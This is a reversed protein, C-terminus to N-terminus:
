DIDSNVEEPVEDLLEPHQILRRYYKFFTAYYFGDVIREDLSFKFDVFKRQVISGDELVDLERRKCGFSGFVPINGFDYLHHYIPPIGLSGMSTMFISGHFPSVELLFPPLIGFYDLTKLLWVTFKLLVGPILSILHAVNDFTSDLPTNKAKEVEVSMKNYIDEATDTPTLHLKIITEASDTSMDKKVVICFQIDNGHSFVKQGAIFRNLGPYKAISRCYAALFVHTIGFSTLGEKRKQRIYREMNTIEFAEEFLNNSENRDVMIYPTVVSIPDLSRIKRGDTRDGWTPHYEGAPHVRVAFIMLLMGLTNLADPLLRCLVATDGARLGRQELYGLVLMPFLLIPFQLAMVPMKGSVIQGYFFAACAFAVAFLCLVLRSFGYGSIVFFFYFAFLWVPIATKYYREKGSILIILAYLCSAAVPLVIQSWVPVTVGTGKVCAFVIRTVASCVIFFLSIWALANKSSVYFSTKNKMVFDNYCYVASNAVFFLFVAM